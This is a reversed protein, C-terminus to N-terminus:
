GDGFARSLGSLKRQVGRRGPGDPTPLPSGSVERRRPARSPTLMPRDEQHGPPRGASRTRDPARPCWEVLRDHLSRSHGTAPGPATLDAADRPRRRAIVGRNGATMAPLPYVQGRGAVVAAPAQRPRVSRWAPPPARNGREGRWGGPESRAPRRDHRHWVAPRGIRRDGLAAAAVPRAVPRPTTREESRNGVGSRADVMRTARTAM